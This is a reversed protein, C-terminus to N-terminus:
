TEEESIEKLLELVEKTRELSKELTEKLFPNNQVKELTKELDNVAEELNERALDVKTLKKM